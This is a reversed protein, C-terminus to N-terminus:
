NYAVRIKVNGSRASYVIFNYTTGSISYLATIAPNNFQTDIVSVALINHINADTKNSNGYYSFPSIGSDSTSSTITLDFFKVLETKDAKGQLGTEIYEKTNTPSGSEIPLMEANNITGSVLNENGNEDIYIEKAM